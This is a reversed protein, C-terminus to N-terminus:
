AQLGSVQDGKLKLRYTCGDKIFEILTEEKMFPIFGVIASKIPILFSKLSLLVLKAGLAPIVYYYFM